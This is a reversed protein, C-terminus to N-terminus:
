RYWERLRVEVGSETGVLTEFQKLDTKTAGGSRYHYPYVIKPKFQRVADAAQKVDMTYPLNMPLFAVDIEKLKRTEPIDETDGAIYVRKGGLQLLYGNGRGKPHFKQRAPTTNYAPVAEVSAGDLKTQQGHGLVTTKETLPGPPLKAAVAKPAVIRVRSEPLVLAELTPVDLHDFHIDTVLVIDPKPLGEFPKAGGVPDVYIAKGNWTLVLTAHEIPYVILDGRDTPIRDGARDAGAAALWGGAALFCLLGLGLTRLCAHM